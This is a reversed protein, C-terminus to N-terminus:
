PHAECPCDCLQPGRVCIHRVPLVRNFNERIATRGQGRDYGAICVPSSVTGSPERAKILFEELTISEFSNAFEQVATFVEFDAFDNNTFIREEAVIQVEELVDCNM